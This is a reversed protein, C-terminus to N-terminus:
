VFPLDPFLLLYLDYARDAILSDLETNSEQFVDEMWVKAIIPDTDAFLIANAKLMLHDEEKCQERISFLIDERTYARGLTEIYKRSYEPVWVTQFATALEQALTTKGASEPGLIAIRLLEKKMVNDRTYDKEM